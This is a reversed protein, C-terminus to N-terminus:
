AARSRGPDMGRAKDILMDIEPSPRAAPISRAALAPSEQFTQLPDPRGGWRVMMIDGRRRRVASRARIAVVDVMDFKIRIGVEALMSQVAEGIQKYETTNLLLWTVDVGNPIAPRPWCSRRRPRSRVSLM